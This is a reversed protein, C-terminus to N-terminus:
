IRIFLLIAGVCSVLVYDVEAPTLAFPNTMGHRFHNNALDYLKQLSGVTEASMAQRKRVEALVDGFTKSPMAYLEKAVAEVADFINKCADRGRQPRDDYAVIGGRFSTLASSFRPQSLEQFAAEVHVAVALPVVRHLRNDDKLEWAIRYGSLLQNVLQRYEAGFMRPVEVGIRIILDYFRQWPAKNIDRSVAYRFGSYPNGSPQFGLSQIIINHLRREDFGHPVREFLLYVADIFEQRLGSPADNDISRNRTNDDLTSSFSRIAM